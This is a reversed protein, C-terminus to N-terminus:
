KDDDDDDDDDDDYCDSFALWYAMSWAIVQILSYEDKTHQLNLTNVREANRHM